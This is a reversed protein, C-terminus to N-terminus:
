VIRRPTQDFVTLLHAIEGDVEKPDNVTDSVKDRIIEGYRNKLRHVAVKVAGPSIGLRDSLDEYSSSPVDVTLYPSLAEFREQKGSAIFEERLSQLASQLLAIAWQREFLQEPTTHDTLMDRLGGEAASLDISIAGNASPRKQATQRAWQNRTYNVLATLLFSRFRGRNPDAKDLDKRELLQTFFGQTLDRASEPDQGAKRLYAYLPQWYIQCLENLAAQAAGPDLDRTKLILSWRTTDFSM